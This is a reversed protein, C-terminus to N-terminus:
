TTEFTNVRGARIFGRRVIERRIDGEAGGRFLVGHPMIIAGKGIPKLSALVHLLFAYDGNKQPPIGFAFRGYFDNAPDFGNSWAKTSFPPNAVVFDYTKLRGATTKFSPNALSSSGPPAIEATIIGHLIMNMRALATTANDQEQGWIGLDHGTM